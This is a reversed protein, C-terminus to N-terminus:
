FNATPKGLEKATDGIDVVDGFEAALKEAAAEIKASTHKAKSGGGSGLDAYYSRSFKELAKRGDLYKQNEAALEASLDKLIEAFPDKVECTNLFFDCWYYALHPLKTKLDNQLYDLFRHEFRQREEDRGKPNGYLDRAYVWCMGETPVQDRDTKHGGPYLRHTGDDGYAKAAYASLYRNFDWAGGATYVYEGNKPKQSGPMYAVYAFVGVCDYENANSFATAGGGSLGSFIVRGKEVPLTKEIHKLCNGSHQVNTIPGKNGNSSEVSAAIIM